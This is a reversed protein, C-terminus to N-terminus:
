LFSNRRLTHNRNCDSANNEGTLEKNTFTINAYSMKCIM